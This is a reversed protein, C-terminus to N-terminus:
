RNLWFTDTSATLNEVGYLYLLETCGAEEALAKVDGRYYRLDVMVIEEYHEIAFTAFCHAYSDKILLLRRGNQCAANEVQVLPHNGDLFVPYQDLESLHDTFYLSDYNNDGITVKYTGPKKATWIELTDPKTLWLGSKAYGTGYFGDSTQSKAFEEPTLGLAECYALYMRYSGAGTLHHDTRYYYDGQGMFTSRLDIVTMEGASQELLAYLSDDWYTQHNAPLKDNLAYGASPVPMVAMPLGLKEGFTRFRDINLSAQKENWAGPAAILFGDSGYYIGSLGNGGMLLNKYANVGVWFERGPFHDTLYNELLQGYSGDTIASLEPKPFTALVRKENRSVELKPLLLFAVSCSVLFVLFVVASIKQKWQKM